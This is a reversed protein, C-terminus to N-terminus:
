YPTYAIAGAYGPLPTFLQLLPANEFQCDIHGSRYIFPYLRANWMTDGAHKVLAEAATWCAFFENEPCSRACFNDWQEPCMFRKGLAKFDRTRIREVDVGVAADHFAMCLCDGSHSINFHQINCHPKGHPGYEFVIADPTTQSRRAIEQRLLARIIAYNGGRRSAETLEEQSLSTTSIKEPSLDSLQYILYNM